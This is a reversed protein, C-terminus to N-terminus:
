TPREMLEVWFGDPDAFYAIRGGANVGATVDVIADSRSRYGLETMREFAAAADRVQLCIHGSGPDCPRAAAAMRELGRYELLEVMNGPVGPVDLLVKRIETFPLDLMERLYPADQIADLIVPLGLGEHYFALSADMDSVTIGGHLLGIVDAGIVETTEAVRAGPEPTM